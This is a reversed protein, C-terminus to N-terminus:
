CYAHRPRFIGKGKSAWNKFTFLEFGAEHSEKRLPFSAFAKKGALLEQM